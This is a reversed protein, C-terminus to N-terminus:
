NFNEWNPIESITPFAESLFTSQSLIYPILSTMGLSSFNHLVMSALFDSPTEILLLVKKNHLLGEQSFVAFKLVFVRQLWGLFVTPLLGYNSKAIIVILSSAIIKEMEELIDPSYKKPYAAMQAEAISKGDTGPYDNMSVVPNFKMDYLNSELVIYGQRVLENVCKAKASAFFENECSETMVVLAKM